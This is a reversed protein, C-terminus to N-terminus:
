AGIRRVWAGGGLLCLCPESVLAAPGPSVVSTDHRGEPEEFVVNSLHLIAALVQSVCLPHPLPLLPCCALRHGYGLRYVAFMCCPTCVPM